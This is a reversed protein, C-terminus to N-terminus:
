KKLRCTEFIRIQRGKIVLGIKQDPYGWRRRNEKEFDLECWDYGNVPKPLYFRTEEWHMQCAIYLFVPERKGAILIGVYTDDRGPAQWPRVSHFSVYSYGFQTKQGRYGESFIDKFYDRSKRFDILRRVFHIMHGFTDRKPLDIWGIENDQCYANNNGGQTNGWEDGGYICPQGAFLILFIFANRMQNRRRRRVLRNQTEGEEGCNWSDAEQDGDRNKEGNRENHRTNYSVLDHLTMTNHTCIWQCGAHAGDMFLQSVPAEGFHDGKLLYRVNRAFSRDDYLIKCSCLVPDNRLQEVDVLFPDVVFGDFHFRRVLDILCDRIYSYSVGSFFPMLLVIEMGWGHCAMVFRRVSNEIDEEEMGAERRLAYSRRIMFPYVRGYGWYNVSSGHEDLPEYIPLLQLQNVGLGSMYPLRSELATFTGAFETHENMTYGRVHLRYAITESPDIHLPRDKRWQEEQAEGWVCSRREKVERERRDSCSHSPEACAWRVRYTKGDQFVCSAPYLESARPDTYFCGGAMFCYILRHGEPVAVTRSATFVGRFMDDQKMEVVTMQEPTFCILAGDSGASGIDGSDYKVEPVVGCAVSLRETEQDGIVGGFIRSAPDCPQHGSFLRLEEAYCTWVYTRKFHSETEPQKRDMMGEVFRRVKIENQM